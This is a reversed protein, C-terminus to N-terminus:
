QSIPKKPRKIRPRPSISCPNHIVESNEPIWRNLKKLWRKELVVTKRSSIALEKKVSKGAFSECFSDFKGSHIHIISPIGFNSCIRMIDRKRWWSLSHTVHIHAIDINGNRILGRLKKRASLWMRIKSIISGECHTRIASSSWGEIDNELLTSIVTSM